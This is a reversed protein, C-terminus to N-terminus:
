TKREESRRNTISINEPKFVIDPMGNPLWHVSQGSTVTQVVPESRPITSLEQHVTEPQTIDRDPDSQLSLGSCAEEDKTSMGDDLCITTLSSDTPAPSDAFSM